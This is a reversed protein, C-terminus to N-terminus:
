LAHAASVGLSSFLFVFFLHGMVLLIYLVFFLFMAGLFCAEELFFFDTTDVVFCCQPAMVCENNAKSLGPGGAKLEHLHYYIDM